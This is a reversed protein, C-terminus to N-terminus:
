FSALQAYTLTCDLRLHLNKYILTYLRRLFTENDTCKCCKQKTPMNTVFIL